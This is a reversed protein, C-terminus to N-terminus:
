ASNPPSPLRLTPITPSSAALTSPHSCASSRQASTAWASWASLGAACVSPSPPQAPGLATRVIRDKEPLCKALALVLTVVAEAVPRRAADVAVHCAPRARTCADVDIADYGVGWRAIAALRDDGSFSDATFRDGLALVADFPAIDAPTVYRGNPGSGSAAFYDYVVHPLPDVLEALVPELRGAADTKFDASIGITLRETM